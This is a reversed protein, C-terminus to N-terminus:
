DNKKEKKQEWAEVDDTMYARTACFPEPHMNHIRATPVVVADEFPKGDCRKWHQWLCQLATDYEEEPGTWFILDTKPKRVLYHRNNELFVDMEKM